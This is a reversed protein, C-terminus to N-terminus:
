CGNYDCEVCVRLVAGCLGGHSAFAFGPGYAHELSNNTASRYEKLHVGLIGVVPDAVDLFFQFATVRYVDVVSAFFGERGTAPDAM